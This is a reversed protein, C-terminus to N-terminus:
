AFGQRHCLGCQWYAGRNLRIFVRGRDIRVGTEDGDSENRPARFWLVDMPAGLDVVKLGAAERL